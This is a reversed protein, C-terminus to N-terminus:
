EACEEDGVVALELAGGYELVYGYREGMNLFMVTANRQM